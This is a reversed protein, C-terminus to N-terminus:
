YGGSMALLRGPCKYKSDKYLIEARSLSAVEGARVVIAAPRVALRGRRLMARRTPRRGAGCVSFPMRATTRAADMGGPARGARQRMRRRFVPPM